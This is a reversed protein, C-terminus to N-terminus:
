KELAGSAAVRIGRITSPISTARDPVPSTIVNSLGAQDLNCYIAQALVICGPIPKDKLRGLGATELVLPYAL